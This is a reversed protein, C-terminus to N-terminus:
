FKSLEHFQFLVLMLLEFSVKCLTGSLYKQFTGSFILRLVHNFVYIHFDAAVLKPLSM